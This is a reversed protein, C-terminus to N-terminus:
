YNFGDKIIQERISPIIVEKLLNAEISLQMELMKVLPEDDGDNIRKEILM